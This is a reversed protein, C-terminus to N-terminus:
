LFHFSFCFFPVVVAQKSQLISGVRQAMGSTSRRSAIYTQFSAVSALSQLVANLFCVNRGNNRLGGPMGLMMM